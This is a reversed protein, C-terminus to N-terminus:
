FLAPYSDWMYAPDLVKWSVEFALSCLPACTKYFHTENIRVALNDNRIEVIKWQVTETDQTHSYPTLVESSFTWAIVDGPRIGWVVGSSAHTSPFFSGWFVVQVLLTLSLFVRKRMSRPQWAVL